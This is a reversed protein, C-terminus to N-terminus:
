AHRGNRSQAAQWAAVELKSPRKLRDREREHGTSLESGEVPGGYVDATLPPQDIPQDQVPPPEHTLCPESVWSVHNARGHSTTSLGTEHGMDRPRSTTPSLGPSMPSVHDEEPDLMPIREIIDPPVTLRYEDATGKRGDRSAQFTYEIFGLDRLQALARGITARSKGTVNMLRALGPKVRTGDGNAYTALTLAIYKTTPDLQARRILREWEFRSAPELM